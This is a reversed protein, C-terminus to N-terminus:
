RAATVAPKTKVIGAKKLQYIAYVWVLQNKPSSYVM